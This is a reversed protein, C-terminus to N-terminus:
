QTDWVDQEMKQWWTDVSKWTDIHESYVAGLGKNNGVGKRPVGIIIQSKCVYMYVGYISHVIRM